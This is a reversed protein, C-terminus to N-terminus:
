GVKRLVARGTREQLYIRIGEADIGAREIRAAADARWALDGSGPFTNRLQRVVALARLAWATFDSKLWVFHDRLLALASEETEVIPTILASIIEADENLNVNEAIWKPHTMLQRAKAISNVANDEAGAYDEFVFCLSKDAIWWPDPAGSGASNGSDYGLLTGLKEHGREFKTGDRSSLAEIVEREHENYKQNHLTGLTEFVSELREVQRSSRSRRLDGATEAPQRGAQKALKRFWPVMVSSKQAQGFFDQAVVSLESEEGEAGQWAACGALYYWLTRYSQLNPHKLLALVERAAELAAEFDGKWLFYQYELEYKVSARLEDAGPLDSAEKGDRLAVIDAEVDFWERSRGWFLRANDILEDLSIGQSNELGFEIEAQLEPHLYKRKESRTLYNSLEDGCIVVLAYDTDSRTCRGTAQAIRTLIRDDLLASAGLREILFKEQLNTARPLGEIILLRCDDGPFDIGDYRNAIVAVAKKRKVFTAKSEEIEAATLTPFGISNNIYEAAESAARNNPVLLLSRGAEQMLAANLKAVESEDLSVAPFFFLRRGVGTRKWVEPVPIRTINKRGTLRELEGGEGLTASMYIRQRAGSFAEHTSTPPILPRILIETSSVFVHCAHVHERIKQWSYRIDLHDAYDDLIGILDAALPLIEPTPLKDVWPPDWTDAEGIMKEYRQAPLLPRLLNVFAKFLPNHSTRNKEVRVTWLDAIYNQAAHADDLVILDAGTFFPNINFLASYSTVAITDAQLYRAKAAQNYEAVRGTFGDVELGYQGRAQEVVQNVLQKTPCLYVVPAEQRRRIWEALVLGVLTKGSGTPLEIAVDASNTAIKRFERWIDAQHSYPSDIKKARLDRFLDEPSDPVPPKKPPKRFAM